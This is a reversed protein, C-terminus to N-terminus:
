ATNRAVGAADSLSWQANTTALDGVSSNFPSYKSVLFNAVYEPNTASIAGSTPRVKVPVKTGLLPFLTADVASGAFDQTLNLTVSADQLGAIRSRATDGFATDDLEAYEIPFDVSTCWPSLVVANVEVRYDTAAFTAM